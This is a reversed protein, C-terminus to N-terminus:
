SNDDYAYITCICTGPLQRHHSGPQGLQGEPVVYLGRTRHAAFEVNGDVYPRMM